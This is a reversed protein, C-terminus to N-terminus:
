ASEKKRSERIQAPFRVEVATGEDSRIELEGRLQRVFAEILSRGLGNSDSAANAADFGTGDDRVCLLLTAPSERKVEVRIHGGERENFAHKYANTIAETVLLGLPVAIEPGIVESPSDVSLEVNRGRSLGGRRLEACLDELFWKLDIEQLSESEYLRRHLTALANIRSRAEAFAVEARPDRIRRAHLNLLSMVLQLNNKVRHHIERVLIEKQALSDRLEVERASILDAM